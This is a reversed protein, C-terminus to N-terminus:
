QNQEKPSSLISYSSNNNNIENITSNNANSSKSSNSISSIISNPKFHQSVNKVGKSMKKFLGHSEQLFRNNSLRQPAKKSPIITDPLPEVAKMNIDDEDDKNMENEEIDGNPGKANNIHILPIPLNDESKKIIEEKLALSKQRPEIASDGLALFSIRNDYGYQLQQQADYEMINQNQNIYGNNYDMNIVMSNQVQFSHMQPYSQSHKSLLSPSIAPLPKNQDYIVREQIPQNDNSRNKLKVLTLSFICIIIISFVAIILQTQGDSFSNKHDNYVNAQDAKEAIATEYIADETIYAITDNSKSEQNINNNLSSSNVVADNIVGNNFNGNSIKNENIQNANYANDSKNPPPPPPVQMLTQTASHTTTVPIRKYDISSPYYNM